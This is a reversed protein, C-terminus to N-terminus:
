SCQSRRSLLRAAAPRPPFTLPLDSLMTTTPWPAAPSAAASDATSSARARCSGTATVSMSLAEASSAPPLVRQVGQRCACPRARDPRASSRARCAPPSAAGPRRSRSRAGRGRPAPSRATSRRARRRTGGAARSDRWPAAACGAPRRRRRSRRALEGAGRFRGADHEAVGARRFREDDFAIRDAAHAHLPPSTSAASATTSAQPPNWPLRSSSARLVEAGAALANRQQRRARAEVGAVADGHRPREAGGSGALPAAHVDLRDIRAAGARRRDHQEIRVPDHHVAVTAAEEVLAAAEHVLGPLPERAMDM